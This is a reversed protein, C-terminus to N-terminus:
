DYDSTVSISTAPHLKFGPRVPVRFGVTAKMPGRGSGPFDLCFSGPVLGKEPCSGPPLRPAPAMGQHGEPGAIGSTMFPACLRSPAGVGGLSFAVGVTALSREPPSSNPLQAQVQPPWQTKDMESCNPNPAGQAQGCSIFLLPM